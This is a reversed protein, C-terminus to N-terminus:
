QVLTFDTEGLTVLMHKHPKFQIRHEGVSPYNGFAVGGRANKRFHLALKLKPQGPVWEWHHAEVKKQHSHDKLFQKRNKFWTAADMKELSELLKQDYVVLLDFALPSNQNLDSSVSIEVTSRGGFLLPFQHGFNWKSCGCLFLLLTMVLWASRNRRVGTVIRLGDGRSDNLIM